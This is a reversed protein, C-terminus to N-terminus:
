IGNVFAHIEQNDSLTSEFVRVEEVFRYFIKRSEEYATINLAQKLKSNDM